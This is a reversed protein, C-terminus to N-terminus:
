GGGSTLVLTPTELGNNDITLNAGYIRFLGNVRVQGDVSARFPIVDGVDYDLKLRPTYPRPEGPRLGADEPLFGDITIIERPQARVAVHEQVLRLRLEESALDSPIVAERRGWKGISPGDGWVQVFGAPADPFGPPLSYGANCLSAKTITRKYAKVNGRDDQDDSYAFVANPQPTGLLRYLNLTAIQLGTEDFTPEVPDCTWVPGDLMASLEALTETYPKYYYPGIFTSVTAEVTGVRIGSDEVANLAELEDALFTSVDYVADTHGAGIGKSGSGTNEVGTGIFRAPMRAGVPDSATINILKGSSGVVEEIDTIEGVFAPDDGWEDNYAKILPEGTLVLDSVPDDLRMAFTHTTNRKVAWSFARSYPNAIEGVNAGTSDSLLVNTWTM